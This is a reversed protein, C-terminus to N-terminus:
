PLTQGVALEDSDRTSPLLRVLGLRARQYCTDFHWFDGGEDLDAVYSSVRDGFEVAADKRSRKSEKWCTGIYKDMKAVQDRVELLGDIDASYDALDKTLQELDDGATRLEWTLGVTAESYRGEIDLLQRTEKVRRYIADIREMFLRLLKYTFDRRARGDAVLQERQRRDEALKSELETRDAAARSQYRSVILAAAGAILIATFAAKLLELLVSEGFTLEGLMSINGESFSGSV